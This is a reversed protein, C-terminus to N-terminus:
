SNIHRNNVYIDPSTIIKIRAFVNQPGISPTPGQLTNARMLIMVDQATYVVHVNITILKGDWSLLQFAQIQLFTFLYQCINGCAGKLPVRVCAKTDISLDKIWADVQERCHEYTAPYNGASLQSPHTPVPGGGKRTNDVM